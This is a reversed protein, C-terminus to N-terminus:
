ISRAASRRRAIAGLTMDGFDGLFCDFYLVRSVAAEDGQHELVARRRSDLHDVVDIGILSGAAV